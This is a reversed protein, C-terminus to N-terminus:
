ALHEVIAGGMYATFLFMIEDKDWVALRDKLIQAALASLALRDKTPDSDLVTQVIAEVHQCEAKLRAQLQAEPTTKDSLGLRKLTDDVMRKRLNPDRYDTSM